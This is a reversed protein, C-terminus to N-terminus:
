KNNNDTELKVKVGFLGSRNLSNSIISASRNFSDMSFQAKSQLKSIEKLAQTGHNLKVSVENLIKKTEAYALQPDSFTDRPEKLSNLFFLSSVLILIAAATSFIAIYRQKSHRMREDREVTDVASILRQEFGHSPEPIVVSINYHSFIEVEAEYGTFDGNGSFWAKLEHEEQSSTTGDYYRELLEDLRERNM